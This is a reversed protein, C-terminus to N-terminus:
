RSQRKTLEPIHRGSLVNMKKQRKSLQPVHRRSFIFKYQGPIHTRSLVQLQEIYQWILFRDELFYQVQM